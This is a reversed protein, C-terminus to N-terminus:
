KWIYLLKKSSSIFAHIDCSAITNAGYANRVRVSNFRVRSLITRMFFDYPFRVRSFDYPFRVRSLITRFISSMFIISIRDYATSLFKAREATWLSKKFILKNKLKSILFDKFNKQYFILWFKKFCNELKFISNYKNLFNYRQISFM